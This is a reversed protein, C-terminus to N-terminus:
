WTRKSMVKDLEAKTMKGLEPHQELWKLFEAKIEDTWQSDIQGTSYKNTRVMEFGFKDKRIVFEATTVVQDALHAPVFLIGERRAIVLDGPLVMVNGIRIPTNLGMLVMEELFSPHFDRVFANFGNIEQIEQLDRSAGNFVV